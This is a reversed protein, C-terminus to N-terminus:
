TQVNTVCFFSTRGRERHPVTFRVQLFCLSSALNTRTKKAGYPRDLRTVFVFVFSVCVNRKTFFLSGPGVQEVFVFVFCVCLMCFEAPYELECCYLCCYANECEGINCIMDWFFFAVGSGSVSRFSSRRVERMIQPYSWHSTPQFNLCLTCGRAIASFTSHCSCSNPKSAIDLM